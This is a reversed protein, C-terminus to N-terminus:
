HPQRSQVKPQNRATTMIPHVSAPFNSNLREPSLGWTAMVCIAEVKWLSGPCSGCTVVICIAWGEM